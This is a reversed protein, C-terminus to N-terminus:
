KQRKNKKALGQLAIHRTLAIIKQEQRHAKLYMRYLVFVLLVFGIGAIQGITTSRGDFIDAIQDITAPRWAIFIIGVWVIAWVLSVTFSDEKAKYALVTKALAVSGLLTAIIKLVIAM